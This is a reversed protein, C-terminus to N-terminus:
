KAIKLSHLRVDMLYSAAYAYKKLIAATVSTIKLKAALELPGM